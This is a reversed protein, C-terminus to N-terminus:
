RSKTSYYKRIASIVEESPKCNHVQIDHVVKTGLLYNEGDVTILIEGASLNKKLGDTTVYIPQPPTCIDCVEVHRRLNVLKESMVIDILMHALQDREAPNSFHDDCIRVIVHDTKKYIYM